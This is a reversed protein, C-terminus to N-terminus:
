QTALMKLDAKDQEDFESPPGGGLLSRVSVDEVAWYMVSGSNKSHHPHDADEHDFASKYGINVLALLHGAEHTLVSREIESAQFLATTSSQIRDEFIAAASAEYSVGLADANEALSGNLFVFWMTATDGGSLSSRHAAELGHLDRISYEDKSAPIQSGRVVRVGGPKDTVSELVNQLHTLALSSPDRGSAWDVEVILRSAPSPRLFTKAMSGVPGEDNYTARPITRAPTPTTAGPGTADAGPVLKGPSRSGSAQPSTAPMPGVNGRVSCAALLLPVAVLTAQRVVRRSM